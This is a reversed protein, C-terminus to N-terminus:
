VMVFEEISTRKNEINSLNFMCRKTTTLISNVHLETLVNENTILKSKNDYVAIIGNTGHESVFEQKLKDCIEKVKKKNEFSLNDFVYDKVWVVGITKPTKKSNSIKQIFNILKNTTNLPSDSNKVIGKGNSFYKVALKFKKDFSIFDPEKNKLDFAFRLKLGIEGKGIRQPCNMLLTKNWSGGFINEDFNFKNIDSFITIDENSCLFDMIQGVDSLQSLISAAEKINKLTEKKNNTIYPSNKDLKNLLVQIFIDQNEKQNKNNHSLKSILNNSFNKNLDEFNIKWIEKDGSRRMISVIEENKNLEYKETDIELAKSDTM